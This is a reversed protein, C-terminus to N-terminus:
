PAAGARTAMRVQRSRTLLARELADSNTGDLLLPEATPEPSFALLRVTLEGLHLELALFDAGAVPDFGAFGRAGVTLLLRRLPHPSVGTAAQELAAGAEDLRARSEADLDTVLAGASSGQAFFQLAGETWTPLTLSRAVVSAPGASRDVFPLRSAESFWLLAPAPGSQERRFRVGPEHWGDLGLTDVEGRAFRMPRYGALPGGLLAALRPCPAVGDVLPAGVGVILADPVARFGGLGRVQALLADSGVVRALLRYAASEFAFHTTRFGGVLAEGDADSVPAGRDGGIMLARADTAAFLSYALRDTGLELWPQPATYVLPAAPGVRVVLAGWTQTRADDPLLLLMPAHPGGGDALFRVTCGIAAASEAALRVNPGDPGEGALAAELLPTVVYDAYLRLEADSPPPTGAPSLDADRFLSESARVGAEMVPPAVHALLAAMSGRIVVAAHRQENPDARLLVTAGPLLRALAIPAPVPGDVLVRDSSGAPARRVVVRTRGAREQVALLWPPPPAGSTDVGAVTLLSCDLRACLDLAFGVSEPERRPHRVEIVPGRAGVHVLATDRGELRELARTQERVVVWAASLREVALGDTAAERLARVSELRRTRLLEVLPDVVRDLGSHAGPPSEFLARAAAARASPAVANEVLVTPSVDQAVEAPRAAAPMVADFGLGLASGVLFGFLSVQTAPLLVRGVAKAQIMKAALLSPLLYGIGFVDNAHFDPSRHGVVVSVLGRLLVGLTFVFAIRRPGELNLTRVWPLRVVGRALVLLLLAEALTAVLRMPEFWTLALLGPVLIGNYDWGYDLNYRSAFYAGSLLILYVKPSSAFDLAADEYTLEQHAYSLNTYPLLVYAVVVYTILTPVAVQWLGRRVDLKWFSNATIPVLVLGIGALSQDLVLTTGFQEDLLRATTPLAWFECVQRVVIGVVLLLFFRDRGFFEVGAGTRSFAQSIARAVVFTLVAELVVTVGAAPSFVFVSALYGPVILGAFVWGFSETLFLLVFVGVLVAPLISSDVGHPFLALANM